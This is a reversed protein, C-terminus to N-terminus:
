VFPHNEKLYEYTALQANIKEQSNASSVFRTDNIGDIIRAKQNDSLQIQLIDLILSKNKKNYIPFACEIRNSLNRTMWDASALYLNEAGAHHFYYVRAHELYGDIISIIRINSSLGKVGPVLCCIGRVIMSIQVGAESAQYLKKIIEVDVLSNMKAIIKAERGAKAEQIEFDILDLFKKKMFDPAILLHRFGSHRIQNFLTECLMNLERTIEKNATFLAFDSYIRATVGNYNGTSLHAYQVLQHNVRKDILCFKCHVKQGQKGFYVVAGAERLKNTWYINSEEDFRAQLEMLVIVKKGNQIANILANVVNSHKAVRYLTIQIKVVDPDLAAERLMRILYDFSHYPHHLLVDENAIVEFLNNTKDLKSLTLPSFKQAYDEPKGVKPFDMFDKFNHYRGGPILNVNKLNLKHVLFDLMEKPMKEDYIFRTPSGKSRQKLSKQIKDLLGITYGTEDQSLIFEADRTLKIVYSEFQNYEFISFISALNARICNELVMISTSEESNPILFFRGILDSPIEIIAHKQNHQTHKNWMRVALYISKDKLMPSLKLGDLLIPFLYPLVQNRFYINVANQESENLEFEEKIFIKKAALEPLIQTQYLNTFRDQLTLVHSQIEALIVNPSSQYESIPKKPSIKQIKLIQAVRVRFFEDMNSSFIAMFKIREMLPNQTNEAEQLVRENFHLWSIERDKFILGFKDTIM